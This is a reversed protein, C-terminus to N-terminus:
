LSLLNTLSKAAKNRGCEPKDNHVQQDQCHTHAVCVDAELRVSGFFAASARLGGEGCRGALTSVIVILRLLCVAAPQSVNRRM